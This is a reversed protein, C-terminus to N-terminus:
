LTINKLYAIPNFDPINKNEGLSQLMGICAGLTISQRIYDQKMEPTIWEAKIDCETNQKWEDLQAIIEKMWIKEM